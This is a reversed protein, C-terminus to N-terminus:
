FSYQHFTWIRTYPRQPPLRQRQSGRGPHQGYIHHRWKRPPYLFAHSTGIGFKFFSIQKRIKNLILSKEKDKLRDIKCDSAQRMEFYNKFNKTIGKFELFGLQNFDFNGTKCCYCTKSVLFFNFEVKLNKVISKM